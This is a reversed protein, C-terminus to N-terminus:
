RSFPVVRNAVAPPRLQGEISVNITNLATAIKKAAAESIDTQPLEATAAAIETKLEVARKSSLKGDGVAKNVRQIMMARRAKLGDLGPSSQERVLVMEEFRDNLENLQKALSTRAEFSLKGGPDRQTSERDTIIKLENCLQEVQAATLWKHELAHQFRKIIQARTSGIGFGPMALDSQLVQEIPTKAEDMHPVYWFQQASVPLSAFVLGSLIGAWIVSAKM